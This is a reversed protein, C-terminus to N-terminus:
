KLLIVGVVFSCFNMTFSLAFLRKSSQKIAFVLLQWEIIVILIEFILLTSMNVSILSLYNNIWLFYNLILNTILNIFIISLFLYKNRINFFLSVAIEIAVTLLLAVFFNILM